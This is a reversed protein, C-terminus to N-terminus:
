QEQLSAVYEVLALIRLQALAEAEGPAGQYSLWEAADARYRQGWAPMESTGHAGVKASGDITNFVRAVPFIGGNTKQLQTIDPMSGTMFSVLPGDGKGAPGHCQVCSNAFEFQGISMADQASASAGLSALAVIAAFGLRGM